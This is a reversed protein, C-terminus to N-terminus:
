EKENKRWREKLMPKLNLTFIINHFISYQHKNLSKLFVLFEQDISKLNFEFQNSFSSPIYIAMVCYFFTYSRLIYILIYVSSNM